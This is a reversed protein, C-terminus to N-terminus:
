ELERRITDSVDKIAYAIAYNPTLAQQHIPMDKVPELMRAANESLTQAIRAMFKHTNPALEVNM